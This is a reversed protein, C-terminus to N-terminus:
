DVREPSRETAARATIEVGFCLEVRRVGQVGCSCRQSQLPHFGVHAVTSSATQHVSDREDRERADVCGELNYSTSIGRQGHHTTGFTAVFAFAGFLLNVFRTLLQAVRLLPSLRVHRGAGRLEEAEGEQM